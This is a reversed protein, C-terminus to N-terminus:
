FPGVQIVQALACLFLCIVTMIVCIPLAFKFWRSFPVKTFGLGIMLIAWTPLILNTIGDGFQYALVAVQRQIGILDALPAMIPMTVMAMASQSPIIMNIITQILVMAPALLVRPLYQLPQVLANIVTDQVMGDELITQIGRALGVLLAAFLLTKAGEIFGDAIQGPKLKRAFGVFIAVILYMSALQALNFSWKIIAFIMFLFAAGFVYLVRKQVKSIEVTDPDKIVVINSYDMDAVLSKSPDKKIRKAYRYIWWAGVAFILPSICARFWMASGIPLGAISQGLIVSYPCTLAGTYGFSLGFTMIATAVVADYGLSISMILFIPMFVMAQEGIGITAALIYFFAYVVILSWIDYSKGKFRSIVKAIFSDIAGSQNVLGFTGGVVLLCIMTIAAKEFGTLILEFFHWLGTPNPEVGHYSGAVAIMRGTAEDLVRDYQGAPLVWTFIAAVILLIFIISFAHPERLKKKNTVTTVQAEV